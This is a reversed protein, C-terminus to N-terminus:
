MDVTLVVNGQVTVTVTGYVDKEIVLDWPRNNELFAYTYRNCGNVFSKLDAM